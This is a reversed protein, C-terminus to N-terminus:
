WIASSGVAKFGTELDYYEDLQGYPIFYFGGEDFLPPTNM